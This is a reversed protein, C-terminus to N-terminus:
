LVVNGREFFFVADSKAGSVGRDGDGAVDIKELDPVADHMDKVVLGICPGVLGDGLERDVGECEGAESAELEEVYLAGPEVLVFVALEKGAHKKRAPSGFACCLLDAPVHRSTYVLLVSM